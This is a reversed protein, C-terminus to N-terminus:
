ASGDSVQYHCVQGLFSAPNRTGSAPNAEAQLSLCGAVALLECSGAEMQLLSSYSCISHIPRCNDLILDHTAHPAPWAHQRVQRLLAPQATPAMLCCLHLHLSPLERHLRSLIMSLQQPQKHADTIVYALQALRYDKIKSSVHQQAAALLGGIGTNLMKSLGPLPRSSVSITHASTAHILSVWCGRIGCCKKYSRKAESGRDRPQECKM